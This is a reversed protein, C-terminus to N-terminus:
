ESTHEESRERRARADRALEPVEKWSFANVGEETPSSEEFHIGPVKGFANERSRAYIRNKDASAYIFGVTPNMPSPNIPVGMAPFRSLAPNGTTIHFRVRSFASSNARLSALNSAFTPAFGRSVASFASMKIVITLWGGASSATRHPWFPAM